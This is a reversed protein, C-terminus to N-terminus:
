KINISKELDSFPIITKVGYDKVPWSQLITKVDLKLDVIARYLGGQRKSAKEIEKDAKIWVLDDQFLVKERPFYYILYDDTHASKSGIFYIQLENKTDSFILKDQILEIKIDKKNLEQKDPNLSHKTNALYTAYDKNIESCIIKTNNNIFARIGGIYHAHYHGFAFYKIPKNPFLEKIKSIILEGNQSSLPAEAVILYNDFEAILVKDDTHKLELLHINDSFKNYVLEHKIEVEEILHYDKPITIDLDFKPIMKIGSIKIEDLLKGNIKEISVKTAFYKGNIKEYNQYIVTTELDGYLDDFYIKRIKDVLCTQKNVFVEIRDKNIETKYINQTSDESDVKAKRNFLETLLLNPSFQLTKFKREYYDTKTLKQLDGAGYKTSVYTDFDLFTKCGKEGISDITFISNKCLVVKGSLYDESKQWPYSAHRFNYQKETYSLEFYENKFNAQNQFCKNLTNDQGFILMPFITLLLLIRLLKM